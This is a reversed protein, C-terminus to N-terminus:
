TVQPANADDSTAQRIGGGTAGVFTPNNSQTLAAGLGPTLGPATGPTLGRGLGGMGLMNLAPDGQRVFKFDKEGKVM